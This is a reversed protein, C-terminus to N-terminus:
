INIFNSLLNQKDWAIAKEYDETTDFEMWGHKVGVAKVQIKNDVCEQIMCTMYAKKFSKSRKWPADVNWYLKKNKEFLEVLKATAMKSFKILGIYRSMAQDLTCKTNGLEFINRTKDYQLSEVDSQWDDLRAMWYDKWDDDVLVGVESKDALLTQILRKEYVIDSYCVIIGDPSALIDEKAQMLSAVMNTTEYEKNERYTVGSFNIKEPHYGRIIVIDSVGASRLTEIQREILSKGKFSLMGKPLNETYKGLRTGMGAALIIAKM